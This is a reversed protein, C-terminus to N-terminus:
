HEKPWSWPQMIVCSGSSEYTSSPKTSFGNHEKMRKAESEAGSVGVDAYLLYYFALGTFYIQGKMAFPDKGGKPTLKAGFRSPEKRELIDGRVKGGTSPEEASSSGVQGGGAMHFKWIRAGGILYGQVKVDIGGDVAAAEPDVDCKGALYKFGLEGKIDGGVSLVIDLDLSGQAVSKKNGLSNKFLTRVKELAFALPSIAPTLKGVAILWELISVELTLGFLPDFGFVFSGETGVISKGPLEVLKLGGGFRWKPWRLKPKAGGVFSAMSDFIKACVGIKNLLSGFLPLGDALQNADLSCKFSQAGYKAEGSFSITWTSEADYAFPNKKGEADKANEHAYAITMEANWEVEPFVQVQLWQGADVDSQDHGMCLRSKLTRYDCTTKNQMALVKFIWAWDRVVIWSPAPLEITGTAKKLAEWEKKYEVGVTPCYSHHDGCEGDWEVILKDPESVKSIVQLIQVDHRALDLQVKRKSHGCQVIVSRLVCRKPAEPVVSACDNDTSSSDPTPPPVPSQLEGAMCVTNGKNMLMKDTLRCAPKGDLTVTPSFSLFTAEMAFVGSVVGGAVGAEDGTSKIFKCGQIAASCGDIMVTTTGSVLDSSMAVNPYPIPIPGGASPTNCVDPITAMAVGNSGQHVASLGNINVTVPM